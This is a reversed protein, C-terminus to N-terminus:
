NLLIRLPLTIILSYCIKYVQPKLIEIARQLTAVTEEEPGLTETINGFIYDQVEGVAIGHFHIMINGLITSIQEIWGKVIEETTNEDSIM